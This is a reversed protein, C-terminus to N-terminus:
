FQSGLHALYAEPFEMRLEALSAKWHYRNVIFNSYVYRHYDKALVRLHCSHHMTAYLDIDFLGKKVNHLKDTVPSCPDLEALALVWLFRPSGVHYLANGNLHLGRRLQWGSEGPLHWKRSEKGFEKFDLSGLVWLGEPGKLDEYVRALTQVRPLWGSRLAVTDLERQLVYDFGVDGLWAMIRYFSVSPGRPYYEENKTLNPSVVVWRAM